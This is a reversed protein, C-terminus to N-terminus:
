QRVEFGARRHQARAAARRHLDHLRHDLRPQGLACVDGCGVNGNLFRCLKRFLFRARQDAFIRRWCVSAAFQSPKFKAPITCFRPSDVSIAAQALAIGGMAAPALRFLACLAQPM